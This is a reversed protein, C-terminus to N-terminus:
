RHLCSVLLIVNQWATQFWARSNRSFIFFNFIKKRDPFIYFLNSLLNKTGNKQESDLMNFLDYFLQSRENASSTTASFAFKKLVDM